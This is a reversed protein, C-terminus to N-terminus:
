EDNLREIYEELIIEELYEIGKKTLKYSDPFEGHGNSKMVLHIPSILEIDKLKNM